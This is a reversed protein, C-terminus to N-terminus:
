KIKKKANKKARLWMSVIGILTLLQVAQLALFLLGAQSPQDLWGVQWALKLPFTNTIVMTRPTETRYIDASAGEVQYFGPGEILRKGSAARQIDEFKLETPAGEASWVEMTLSLYPIIDSDNTLKAMITIPHSGIDFTLETVPTLSGPTLLQAPYTPTLDTTPQVYEEDANRNSAGAYSKLRLIAMPDFGGMVKLRARNTATAPITRNPLSKPTITIQWSDGGAPKATITYYYGLKTQTSVLPQSISFDKYDGFPFSVL